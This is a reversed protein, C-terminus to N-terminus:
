IDILRNQRDKREKEVLLVTGRARRTTNKKISLNQYKRIMM